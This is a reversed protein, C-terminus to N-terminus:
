HGLLRRPSLLRNCLTILDRRLAPEGDSLDPVVMGDNIVLM